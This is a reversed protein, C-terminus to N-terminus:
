VMVLGPKTAKKNQLVLEDAAAAEVRDAAAGESWNHTNMTELRKKKGPTNDAQRKVESALQRRQEQITANTLVDMLDLQAEAVADQIQEQGSTDVEEDSEWYLDAVAEEREKKVQEAQRLAAYAVREQKVRADLLAQVISKQHTTRHQITTEFADTVVWPHNAKQQLYLGHTDIVDEGNGTYGKPLIQADFSPPQVTVTKGQGDIVPVVLCRGIEDVTVDGTASWGSTPVTDGDSEPLDPNNLDHLIDQLKKNTASSEKVITVGSGPQPLRFAKSAGLTRPHVALIPEKTWAGPPFGHLACTSNALPTPRTRSGSAPRKGASTPRGTASSPRSSASTPRSSTSTSRTSSASSPRSNSKDNLSRQETSHPKNNLQIDPKQKQNLRQYASDLITHIFLGWDACSAFHRGQQLECFVAYTDQPPPKCHQLIDNHMTHPKPVEFEKQRPRDKQPSRQQILWEHEHETKAKLLLHKRIHSAYFLIEAPDHEVLRTVENFPVTSNPVKDGIPKTSRTSGTVSYPVTIGNPHHLVTVRQIYVNLRLALEQKMAALVAALDAQTAGGWLEFYASVPVAKPVIQALHWREQRSLNVFAPISSRLATCFKHAPTLATPMRYLVVHTNPLAHYPHAPLLPALTDAWEVGDVHFQDPKEPTLNLSSSSQPRSDHHSSSFSEEQQEETPQQKKEEEAIRQREAEEAEAQKRQREAKRAAIRAQAQQSQAELQELESHLDGLETKLGTTMKEAHAEIWEQEERAWRQQRQLDTEWEINARGELEAAQRHKILEKRRRINDQLTRLETKVTVRDEPEIDTTTSATHFLADTTEQLADLLEFKEEFTMKKKLIEKSHLEKRLAQLEASLKEM